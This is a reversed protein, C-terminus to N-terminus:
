VAILLIVVGFCGEIEDFLSYVAWVLTLIAM